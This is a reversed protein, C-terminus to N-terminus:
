QPRGKLNNLEHVIQCHSKDAKGEVMKEFRLESEKNCQIIRNVARELDDKTAFGERTEQVCERLDSIEKEHKGLIDDVRKKEANMGFKLTAAIVSLLALFVSLIASYLDSM